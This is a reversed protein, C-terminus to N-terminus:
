ISGGSASQGGTTATQDGNEAASQSGNEAPAAGNEANAAHSASGDPAASAGGPLEGAAGKLEAEKQDAEATAADIREQERQRRREAAAAAEAAEAREEAQDVIHQVQEETLSGMAMLNEPEIVSLEDYTLFGEGVLREAVSPELGDLESFGAVAREIESDLEERTMIEIDWGCLKSALRVNQGRRGIALSLQDERV